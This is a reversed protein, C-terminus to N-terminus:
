EVTSFQNTSHELILELARGTAEELRDVRASLDDADRPAACALKIRSHIIQQDRGLKIAVFCVGDTAAPAGPGVDGTIAVSWNAEPTQRLAATALLESALASVPGHAPDDLVEEPVGLWSAKSGSRYVVFSGCFWNSIGPVCGLTAAMQGATCSEALVLKVNCAELQSKLAVALAINTLNMLLRRHIFSGKAMGLQAVM